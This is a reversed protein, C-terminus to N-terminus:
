ATSKLSRGPRASPPWTRGPTATRMLEDHVVAYAHRPDQEVSPLSKPTSVSLDVSAYIDDQLKHRISNQRLAM